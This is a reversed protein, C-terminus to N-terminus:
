SSSEGNIINLKSSSRTADILSVDFSDASEVKVSRRQVSLTLTYVVVAVTVVM